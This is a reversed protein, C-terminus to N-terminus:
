WIVKLGLQMQRSSTSTTDIQGAGNILNGTANFLVRHDLPPSFNPHNLINFIEVRLQLNLTESIRKLPNDKFLSFDLDSLGPGVISNRHLNGLVNAPTPFAFCQTKLYSAPNGPNTPNTCGPLSLLNPVDYPDSSKSGLPDGAIVPTFPAGASAQFTGAVRWGMM